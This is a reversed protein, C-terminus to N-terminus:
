PSRGTELIQRLKGAHHAQVGPTRRPLARWPAGREGRRAFSQNIRRRPRCRFHHLPPLPLSTARRLARREQANGGRQSDKNTEIAEELTLPPMITSIRKSLMSKGSGPPGILLLANNGSVAVEIARKVHTQGKVESFDVEDRSLSEFLAEVNETVPLLEAKRTLFEYTERLNTVGYVDIGEVMAAERANALPLVVAKHGRNRAELVM